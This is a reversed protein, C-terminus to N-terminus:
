AALKDLAQVYDTHDMIQDKWDGFLPSESPLKGGIELTGSDDFYCLTGVREYPPSPPLRPVIDDRHVWYQWPTTFAAACTADCFGPGGFTVGQAVSIGAMGLAMAYIGCEGGGLSHGTLWIPQGTIQKVAYAVRTMRDRVASQFGAHVRGPGYLNSVKLFDFDIIWDEANDSGRPVLIACDGRACLVWYFPDDVDAAVVISLGLSTIATHMQDVPLYVSECLRSLYRANDVCPASSAPNFVPDAM